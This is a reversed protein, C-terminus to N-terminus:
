MYMSKSERFGVLETAVEEVSERKVLNEIWGKVRKRWFTHKDEGEAEEPGAYWCEALGAYAAGVTDADKGLDVAMVAGDEFREAALLCLVVTLTHM